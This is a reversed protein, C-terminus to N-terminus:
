MQIQKSGIQVLILNKKKNETPSRTGPPFPQGKVESSSLNFGVQINTEQEDQKLHVAPKRDKWRWLSKESTYIYIKLNCKSAPGDGEAMFGLAKSGSLLITATSVSSSHNSYAFVIELKKNRKRTSCFRRAHNGHSSSFGLRVQNLRSTRTSNLCFTGSSSFEDGAPSFRKVIKQRSNAKTQSVHRSASDSRSGM